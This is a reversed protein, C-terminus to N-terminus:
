EIDISHVLFSLLHFHPLCGSLLFMAPAVGDKTRIANLVIAISRAVERWM